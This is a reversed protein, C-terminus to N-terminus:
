SMQRGCLRHGPRKNKSATTTESASEGAGGSDVLAEEEQQEIEREQEKEEEYQEIEREQTM